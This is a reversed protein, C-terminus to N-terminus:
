DIWKGAKRTELSQIKKMESNSHRVWTRVLIVVSGVCLFFWFWNWVDRMGEADAAITGLVILAIAIMGISIWRTTKSEQRQMQIGLAIRQVQNVLRTLGNKDKTIFDVAGGKIASVAVDMTGQGTLFIVKTGPRVSKAKRLVDLGDMGGEIEQNLRYDVVLIDPNLDGYHRFCQEGSEFTHVESDPVKKLYVEIAQRYMIDDEVVAIRVHHDDAVRHPKTVKVKAEKVLTEM